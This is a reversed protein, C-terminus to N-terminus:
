YPAPNPDSEWMGYEADSSLQETIWDVHASVKTYIGPFAPNGCGLGASVVGVLQYTSAVEAPLKLTLPGGSDGRCADRPEGDRSQACLVTEQFGGPFRTQFGPVPRYAAECGAPDSVRLAAEQLRDAPQGGFELLGRGAVTVNSGVHEAGAPPLCIPRTEHSLQVREALRAVALDHLSGRYAPHRTVLSVNRDQVRFTQNTSLKADGLRAGVGVAEEPRLCHAATLVHRDTILTGGCFWDGLVGDTWRGLLVMWPWRSLDAAEGGIPFFRVREYPPYLTIQSPKGCNTPLEPHSASVPEGVPWTSTPPPDAPTPTAPSIDCCVLPTRDSFGCIESRRWQVATSSRYAPCETMLVCERGAGCRDADEPFYLTCVAAPPLLVALLAAAASRRPWM